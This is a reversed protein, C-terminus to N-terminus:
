KKKFLLTVLFVFRSRLGSEMRSLERLERRAKEGDTHARTWGHNVENPQSEAARPADTTTPGNKEASCQTRRTEANLKRRKMGTPLLFARDLRLSASNASTRLSSNNPAFSKLPLSRVSWLFPFQVQRRGDSQRIGNAIIRAIRTEGKRWRNHRSDSQRGRAPRQGSREGVPKPRRVAPPSGDRRPPETEM